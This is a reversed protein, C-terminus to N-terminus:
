IRRTLQTIMEKYGPYDRVLTVREGPEYDRFDFGPAVTTGLLAFSGGEKLRSGQWIDKRVIVQPRMGSALDTGLTVVEGTGDPYLQLIEVPDGLYFHFIEDFCLKHMESFAGPTLLYYIATSINRQGSQITEESRYTEIYYGGEEPHPKLRLRSIIQEADYM